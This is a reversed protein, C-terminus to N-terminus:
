TTTVGSTVHLRLTEGTSTLLTRSGTVPMAVMRIGERRNIGSVPVLDPNHAISGDRV